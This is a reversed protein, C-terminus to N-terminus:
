TMLSMLSIDHTADTINTVFLTSIISQTLFHLKIAMTYIDYM